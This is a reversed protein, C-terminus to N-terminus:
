NGDKKPKHKEVFKRISDGDKLVNITFYRLFAKLEEVAEEPTSYENYGIITGFPRKTDITFFWGNPSYEIQFKVHYNAEELSM